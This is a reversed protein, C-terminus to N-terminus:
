VNGAGSPAVVTANFIMSMSPSSTSTVSHTYNVRQFEHEFLPDSVIGSRGVSQFFTYRLVHLADM